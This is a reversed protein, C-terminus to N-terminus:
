SMWAKDTFHTLKGNFSLDAKGTGFDRGKLIIAEAHDDPTDPTYYSERHLGIVITAHEEIAGSDRFDTLTPRKCDRKDISRNLQSGVVIPVGLSVPILKLGESIETIREYRSCQREPQMIQIYDVFAAKIGYKRMDSAIKRKLGSPTLSATKKIYIPCDKMQNAAEYLMEIQEKTAFGMEAAYLSVGCRASAMRKVITETSMECSYFATPIGQGWSMNTAMDVMISTKGIGPRGGIVLYDTEYLGVIISDIDKFGTPIRNSGGPEFSVTKAIDGVHDLEKSTDHQTRADVAKAVDSLMDDAPNIGTAIRTIEAGLISIESKKYADLVLGAQWEVTASSCAADHIVGIYQASTGKDRLLLTTIPKGDDVLALCDEYMKRNRIDLFMDPTLVDSVLAVCENDMIFSAIVAQEAELNM